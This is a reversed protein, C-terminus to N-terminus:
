IQKTEVQQIFWQYYGLSTKDLRVCDKWCAIMNFYDAYTFQRLKSVLQEFPIEKVKTAEVVKEIFQKAMLGYQSDPKAVWKPLKYGMRKKTPM